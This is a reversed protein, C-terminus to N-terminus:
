QGLRRATPNDDPDGGGTDAPRFEVEEFAEEVRSALRSYESV